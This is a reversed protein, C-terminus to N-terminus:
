RWCACGRLQSMLCASGAYRDWDHHPGVESSADIQCIKGATKGLCCVGAVGTFGLAPSNAEPLVREYRRLVRDRSNYMVLLKNLQGMALGNCNGPQLWDNELAPAMLVARTRPTTRCTDLRLGCLQGGGALHLAGLITRAGYSYGILSVPVDPHIESLWTALLYSQRPTRSAKERADNGPGGSM